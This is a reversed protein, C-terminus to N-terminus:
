HRMCANSPYTQPSGDSPWFQEIIAGSGTCWQCGYETGGVDTGGPPCTATSPCQAPTKPGCAGEPIATPPGPANCCIEASPGTPGTCVHSRLDCCGCTPCDSDTTCQTNATTTMSTTSTESTATTVSTTTTEITPPTTPLPSLASGCCVVAGTEHCTRLCCKKLNRKCAQKARRLCFSRRRAPCSALRPDAAACSAVDASCGTRCRRCVKSAPAAASLPLLVLV